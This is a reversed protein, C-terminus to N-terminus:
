QVKSSRRRKLARTVCYIGYLIIASFWWLILNFSAHGWHISDVRDVRGKLGTTPHDIIIGMFYGWSPVIRYDSDYYVVDPFWYSSHLMETGGYFLSALTFLVGLALTTLFYSLCGKLCSKM